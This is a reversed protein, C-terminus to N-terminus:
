DSDGLYDLMGFELWEFAKEYNQEVGEGTAYMSGVRYIAAPLLGPDAAELFLNFAKSKDQQVGNGNLYLLGLYYQAKTHGQDAAKKLWKYAEAPDIQRHMRGLVYQADANGEEAAKSFWDGLISAQRELFWEAAIVSGNEAAKQYWYDAKDSNSKICEGFYYMEALQSQAYADGKKALAMTDEPTVDGSVLLHGSMYTFELDPSTDDNNSGTYAIAPSFVTFLPLLCCKMLSRTPERLWTVQCRFGQLIM